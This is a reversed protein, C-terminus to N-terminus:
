ATTIEDVLDGLIALTVDEPVVPWSAGGFVMIGERPATIKELIEGSFPHRVYGLEEGAAVHEGRKGSDVFTFGRAGSPKILTHSEIVTVQASEYAPEGSLMGLHKMANFVARRIRQVDEQLFDRLGPGGGINLSVVAKGDEAASRAMSNEEPPIIVVQPLGLATALARSREVDGTRYVAAYRHYSWQAGSHLDLLADAQALVNEYYRHVMHESVTGDPRGRGLKNLNKGDWAADVQEFEFGSTNMLPVLVLTGAMQGPDLEKVLHPLVLAPEIELGSLGSQVVLVPGEHAGQVIHLPIHVDFQGHTEGTKFYGFAKEGRKAEINGIRM